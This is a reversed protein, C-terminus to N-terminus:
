PSTSASAWPSSSAAWSQERYIPRHPHISVYMRNNNLYILVDVPGKQEDIERKVAPGADHVTRVRPWWARRPRCACTGTPTRPRPGLSCRRPPRPWCPFSLRQRPHPNFSSTFPKIQIFTTTISGTRNPSFRLTAPVDTGKAARGARRVPGVAKGDAAGEEPSWQRRAVLPGM